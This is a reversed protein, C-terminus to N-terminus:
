PRPAHARARHILAMAEHGSLRRLRRHVRETPDIRVRRGRPLDGPQLMVVETTRNGSLVTGMLARGKGRRVKDIVMGDHELDRLIRDTPTGQAAMQAIHALLAQDVARDQLDRSAVHDAGREFFAEVLLQITLIACVPLPLILAFSWPIPAILAVITVFLVALSRDAPLASYMPVLVSLLHQHDSHEISRDRDNWPITTTM